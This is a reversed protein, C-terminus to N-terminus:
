KAKSPGLFGIRIILPRVICELVKTSGRLAPLAQELVRNPPGDRRYGATPWPMHLGSVHLAEAVPPCCFAVAPISSSVNILLLLLLCLLLLLLVSDPSGCLLCQM